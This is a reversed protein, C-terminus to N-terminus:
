KNQSKIKSEISSTSFGEHFTLSVVKGGNAQVIESGVIQAVPWDGGKVLVDPLVWEIWKLPTAEEFILVADVSELGALVYARSNQNNIPRNVGKLSRVSADDNIGVILRDGLKKAEYLYRVHGEHLLDFCGNTFVIKAHQSKWLKVQAELQEKILLKSEPNRM